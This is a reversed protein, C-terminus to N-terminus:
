DKAADRPVKAQELRERILSRMAKSPEQDPEVERAAQVLSAALSDAPLHGLLRDVNTHIEAQTPGTDPQSLANM